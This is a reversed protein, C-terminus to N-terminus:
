TNGSHDNIDYKKKLRLIEWELDDLKEADCAIVRLRLEKVIALWDTGKKKNKLYIDIYQKEEKSLQVGGRNMM